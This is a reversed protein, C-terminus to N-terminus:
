ENYEDDMNINIWEGNLKLSEKSAELVKESFLINQIYPLSNLNNKKNEKTSDLFYKVSDYGYGSYQEKNLFSDYSSSFFYPNIQNSKNEDWLEMGREKQDMILRGKEFTAEVRQHSKSPTGAPDNWGVQFNCIVEKNNDLKIVLTTIISDYCNNGIKNFIIGKTGISSIRFSEIRKEYLFELQDIYHCGIYSLVNTDKTWSFTELPLSIPQTYQVSYHLMNGYSNDKIYKKLLTNSKDFRKHYDVWLSIKKSNSLELLEQAEKLNDTVPKVIWTPINANLMKQTYSFHNKDPICIFSAFINESSIFNELNDLHILEINNSCLNDIKTKLKDLKSKTRYFLAISNDSYLDIWQIVSRLIVGDGFNDDMVFSGTGIIIIYDKKM